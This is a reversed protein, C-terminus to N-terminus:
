DRPSPSTYLLCGRGGQKKEGRQHLNECKTSIQLLDIRHDCNEYSISFEDARNRLLNISSEFYDLNNDKILKYIVRRDKVIM